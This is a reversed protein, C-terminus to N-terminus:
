GKFQLVSTTFVYMCENMFEAKILVSYRYVYILICEM